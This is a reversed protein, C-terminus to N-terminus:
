NNKYEAKSINWFDKELNYCSYKRLILENELTINVMNEEVKLIIAVKM